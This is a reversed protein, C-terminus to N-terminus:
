MTRLASAGLAQVHAALALLRTRKSARGETHLLRPQGKGCRGGDGGM